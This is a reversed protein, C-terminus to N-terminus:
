STHSFYLILFNTKSPSPIPSCTHEVMQQNMGWIGKAWSHAMIWQRTPDLDASFQFQYCLQPQLGTVRLLFTSIKKLFIEKQEGGRVCPGQKMCSGPPCPDDVYRPGLHNNEVGQSVHMDLSCQLFQLHTLSVIFRHSDM